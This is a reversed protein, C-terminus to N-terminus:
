PTKTANLGSPERAQNKVNQRETLRSIANREAWTSLEHPWDCQEWAESWMRIGVALIAQLLLALKASNSM